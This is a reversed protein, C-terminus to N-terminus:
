EVREKDVYIIWKDGRTTSVFGARKFAAYEEQTLEGERPANEYVEDFIEELRDLMIENATGVDDDPGASKKMCVGRKM